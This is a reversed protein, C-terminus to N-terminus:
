PDPLAVGAPPGAVQGLHHHGAAETDGHRAAVGKAAVSQVVKLGAASMRGFPTYAADLISDKYVLFFQSGNHGPGLGKAMALTGAPYTCVETGSDPCTQGLM